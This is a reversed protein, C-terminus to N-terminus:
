QPGPAVDIIEARQPARERFNVVIKAPGTVAIGASKSPYAGTLTFILDAARLQTAYDSDIFEVVESNNLGRNVVLRQVKVASVAQVASDFASRVAPALNDDNLGAKALVRERLGLTGSLADPIPKRALATAPPIKRAM